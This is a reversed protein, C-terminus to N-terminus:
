FTREFTPKGNADYRMEVKLEVDYPSFIYIHKSVQSMNGELSYLCGCIFDMVRQGERQSTSVLEDLNVVVPSGSILIDCIAEADEYRAPKFVHVKFNSNKNRGKNYPVVKSQLRESRSPRSSGSDSRRGSSDSDRFSGRKKVPAEEYDDDDDEADVFDDELEDRMEEDDSIKLAKLFNNFITPM